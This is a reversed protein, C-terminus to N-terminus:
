QSDGALAHRLSALGRRLGTKVTGLPLRTEEAIEAHTMGRFFALTILERAQVNLGSLARHVAGASEVALLLDLPDDDLAPDGASLVEPEPHSEALDRARLLDLARSRCITLLWALVNGRAPDFRAADRWVQQFVDGVVEEASEPKRTVRLALGYVRSVTADFLEGLAAEDGGAVRAVLAELQAFAAGGAPDDAFERVSPAQAAGGSQASIDDM